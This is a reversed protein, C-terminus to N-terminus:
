SAPSWGCRRLRAEARQLVIRRVLRVMGAAVGDSGSDPRPSGTGVAARLGIAGSAGAVGHDCPPMGGSPRAPRDDAPLCVSQLATSAPLCEAADALLRAKLHQETATLAM